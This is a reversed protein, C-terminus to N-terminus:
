SESLPSGDPKLVRLVLADEAQGNVATEFADYGLGDGAVDSKTSHIVYDTGPEMWEKNTRDWIMEGPQVKGCYIATHEYTGVVFNVVSCDVNGLVIIDGPLLGEPSVQNKGSSFFSNAREVNVGFGLVIISLIAFSAAKM